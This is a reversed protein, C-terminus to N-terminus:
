GRALRGALRHGLALTPKEVGHHVLLVAAFVVPVTVALAAHFGVHPVLRDLLFFGVIGHLLYVSYSTASLLQVSRRPRLQGGLQWALLFVALAWAFSVLYSNDLPLFATHISRLGMLLAAYTLVGLGAAAPLGIARRHLALYLIQGTILYPLYAVSAAFLFFGHGFARAGAIVGIVVALLVAVRLAPWRALPYSALVLAYFLIEIALTWAVGVLVVQPHMWYNVLLANTLVTWPTAQARAEPSLLVALVVTVALMPFIRFVRKIAFAAANERLSVHTIVFGSILFFLCVGFWGFNQIIGLPRNVTEEVWVAMPVRIGRAAPWICVLHDWVVLWAAVARLADLFHIQQQKDAMPAPTYACRRPMGRRWGIACAAAVIVAVM